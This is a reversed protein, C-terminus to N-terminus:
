EREFDGALQTKQGKGVKVDKLTSKLLQNRMTGLTGNQTALCSMSVVIKVYSAPGQKKM